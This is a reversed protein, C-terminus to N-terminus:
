ICSLVKCDCLDLHVARGFGFRYGPCLNRFSFAALASVFVVWPVCLGRWWSTMSWEAAWCQAGCACHSPPLGPPPPPGRALRQPGPFTRPSRLDASSLLSLASPMNEGLLVTWETKRGQQLTLALSCRWLQVMWSVENKRLVSCSWSRREANCGMIEVQGTQEFTAPGWTVARHQGFKYSIGQYVLHRNVSKQQSPTDGYPQGWKTVGRARFRRTSWWRTHGQTGTDM